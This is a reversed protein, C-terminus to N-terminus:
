ELTQIDSLTFTKTLSQSTGSLLYEDVIYTKFYAMVKEFDTITIAYRRDIESRDNPRDGKIEALCREMLRFMGQRDLQKKLQADSQVQLAVKLSVLEEDSPM